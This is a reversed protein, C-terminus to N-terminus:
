SDIASSSMACCLDDLLEAATQNKGRLVKLTHEVGKLESEHTQVESAMRLKQDVLYQKRLVLENLCTQLCENARSYGSIQQGLEDFLNKGDSDDLLAAILVQREDARLQNQLLRGLGMLDPKLDEPSAQAQKRRTAFFGLCMSTLSPASMKLCCHRCCFM